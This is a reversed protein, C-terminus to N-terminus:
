RCVRFSEKRSDIEAQIKAPITPKIKELPLESGSKLDIERVCASLLQDATLNRVNKFTARAINAGGLLTWHIDGDEFTAGRLDAAVLDVGLLSANKFIANRLSAGKLHAGDLKTNTFHAGDFNTILVFYEPVSFINWATLVDWNKDKWDPYQDMGAHMGRLDSDDFFSYRLDARLMQVQPMYLKALGGANLFQGGALCAGELNFQRYYDDSETNRDALTRTAARMRPSMLFNPKTFSNGDCEIKGTRLIYQSLVDFVQQHYIPSSKAISGLVYFAGITSWANKQEDKIEFVAKTFLEAANQETKQRFDQSFNSSSQIFTAVFALGAVIQAITGRIQNRTTAV